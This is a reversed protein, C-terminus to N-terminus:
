WRAGGSHAGSGTLLGAACGFQGLRRLFRDTEGIYKVTREAPSLELPRTESWALLYIGGVDALEQLGGQRPVGRGPFAQLALKSWHLWESGLPELEFSSPPRPTATLPM